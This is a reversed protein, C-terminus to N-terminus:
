RTPDVLSCRWDGTQRVCEVDRARAGRDDYEFRADPTLSDRAVVYISACTSSGDISQPGGSACMSHIVV